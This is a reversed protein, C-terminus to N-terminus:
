ATLRIGIFKLQGNKIRFVYLTGYEENEEKEGKKNKVVKHMGLALNLIRENSDINAYMQYSTFNKVRFKITETEGKKSLEDIKLKSICNFFKKPFIKNYNKDFDQETFPAPKDNLQEKKKPDDEYILEWITNDVGVVPFDFFSKVKSKDGLSIANKFEKFKQIWASTDQQQKVIM